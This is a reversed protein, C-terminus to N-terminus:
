KGEPLREVSSNNSGWAGDLSSPWLPEVASNIPSRLQQQQPACATRWNAADCGRVQGQLRYVIFWHQPSLKLITIFWVVFINVSEIVKAFVESAGIRLFRICTVPCM